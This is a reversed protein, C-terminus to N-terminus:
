RSLLEAGGALKFKDAMTTPWVGHCASGVEATFGGLGINEDAEVEVTRTFGVDVGPYSEEVMHQRCEGPMPQEVEIHLGLAIQMDICVMRDLIDADHEALRQGIRDALFAPDGTEALGAHRHIFRQHIRHDIKRAAGIQAPAHAELPRHQARHVGLQDLFEEARQGAVAEERQVHTM